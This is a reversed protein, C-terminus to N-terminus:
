LQKDKFLENILAMAIRDGTDAVNGINDSVISEIHMCEFYHRFGLGRVGQIQVFLKDNLVEFQNCDKIYM